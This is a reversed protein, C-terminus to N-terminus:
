AKGLQRVVEDTTWLDNAILRYNILAAMYGDGEPLKPGATADKVVTVEFGQEIFERLHSEVCLNAAMGALLIQDVKQKRLQLAVDNSEPGFIKHPSAIITKGDFIYPKYEPMFDAGSGEFGKMDYAGPRAFMGSDHMFHEGPGGFEWQHDTPYYYHPSVVVPIDAGKAAKFLRLLNPVTNNQTVSEGVAGWAIGRPSLFDIQPDIVVLAVRKRDLKMGKRPMAYSSPEAYPNVHGGKGAAAKNGAAQAQGAGTMAVAGLAAVAAVARADHGLFQRRGHDISDDHHNNCM